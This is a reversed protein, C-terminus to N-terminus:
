LTRGVAVAEVFTVAEGDNSRVGANIAAVLAAGETTTVDLKDTGPSRLTLDACPIEFTVANGNAEVCRVLWKQTRVAWDSAANGVQYKTEIAIRSDKQLNGISVGAIAASLDDMFGQIATFTGATLDQFRAAVNATKGTNDVFTLNLKSTM